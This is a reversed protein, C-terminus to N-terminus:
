KRKRWLEVILVDSSSPIKKFDTRLSFLQEGSAISLIALKEEEGNRITSERIYQLDEESDTCVYVSDPQCLDIYEAIFQYLTPNDIAMLKTYHDEQLKEKLIMTMKEEM